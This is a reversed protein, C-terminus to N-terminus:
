KKKLRFNCIKDLLNKMKGMLSSKQTQEHLKQNLKQVEEQKEGLVQALRANEALARQQVKEYFKKAYETKVAPNGKAQLIEYARKLSQTQRGATVADDAMDNVLKKALSNNGVKQLEPIAKARVLQKIDQLNNQYMKDLVDDIDNIDPITEVIYDAIQESQKNSVAAYSLSDKLATVINSVNSSALRQLVKKPKLGKAMNRFDEQLDALAKDDAATELFVDDILQLQKKTLKKTASLTDLINQKTMGFDRQKRISEKFADQDLNFRKSGTLEKNLADIFKDSKGRTAEILTIKDAKIDKAVQAVDEDKAKVEDIIGQAEQDSIGNNVLAEKIDTEKEGSDLSNKVFDTLITRQNNVAPFALAGKQRKGENEVAATPNGTLFLDTALKVANDIVSKKEDFKFEGEKGLLKNFLDRFFNAIIEIFSDAKSDRIYKSNKIIDEKSGAFVDSVFKRFEPNIFLEAMFEKVDTLGYTEVISGAIGPKGKKSAIYNYMEELAKYSDNKTAADATESSITLFHLLEHVATYYVNGGNFLEIKDDFDYFLGFAGDPSMEKNILFIDIKKLNGDKRIIKLIDTFEGGYEILKDVIEESTMEKKVGLDEFSIRSFPDNDGKFPIPKKGLLKALQDTLSTAKVETTEAGTVPGGTGEQNQETTGETAQEAEGTQVTPQQENEITTNNDFSEEFLDSFAEQGLLTNLEEIDQDTAEPANEVTAFYEDIPVEARLGLAADEIAVTGKAQSEEFFDYIAKAGINPKGNKISEIATEKQANSLRYGDEGEMDLGNLLVPEAVVKQVLENTRPSYDEAKINAVSKNTQSSRRQVKGGEPYRLIAHGRGYDINLGLDQADVRIENLASAKNKDNIRMKNFSDIRDRLGNIKEQRQSKAKAIKEPKPQAAKVEAASVRIRPKAAPQAEGQQKINPTQEILKSQDTQVKESGKYIKALRGAIVQKAQESTYGDSIFEKEVESLLTEIDIKRVAAQNMSERLKLGDAYWTDPNGLLADKFDKKVDKDSLKDWNQYRDIVRKSEKADQSELFSGFGNPMEKEKKMLADIAENAKSLPVNFVSARERQEMEKELTNFEDKHSPNGEIEAMRKEIDTDSKGEVSVDEPKPTPEAKPEITPTIETKPEEKKLEINDSVESISGADLLKQLTGEEELAEANKKTLFVTNGNRTTVHYINDTKGDFIEEALKDYEKSKQTYVKGLATNKNEEAMTKYVDSLALNHAMAMGEINGPAVNLEKIADTLKSSYTLMQLLGKKEAEDKFQENQLRTRLGDRFLQGLNNREAQQAYGYLSNQALEANGSDILKKWNSLNQSHGVLQGTKAAAGFGFGGALGGYFNQQFDETQMYDWVDLEPKGLARQQANYQYYGQIGEQAGEAIATKGLDVAGGVINLKPKINKAARFLTGFELSQLLLNPLFEADSAAAKSAAYPTIALGNEDKGTTLLDNYIQLKNQVTEFSSSILGGTIAGATGGGTAITAAMGPIMYPASQGVSYAYFSPDLLSRIGNYNFHKKAYESNQIVEGIAKNGTTYYDRMNTSAGFSNSLWRTASEMMNGYGQVFGTGYRRWGTLIKDAEEQRDRAVTEVALKEQDKEYAIYDDVFKKTEEKSAGKIGISGDDYMVIDKPLDKVGNILRKERQKTANIITARIENDQKQIIPKLEPVLRIEAEIKTEAEEPTLLKKNVQDSYKKVINQFSPKTALEKNYKEIIATQNADTTSNLVSEFNQNESSGFFDNLKKYNDVIPAFKENKPAQMFNKMENDVWGKVPIVNHFYDRVENYITLYERGQAPVETNGAEANIVPNNLQKLYSDVTKKIYLDEDISIGTSGLGALNVEGSGSIINILHDIQKKAVPDFRNNKFDNNLFFKKDVLDQRKKELEKAYEARDILIQGNVSSAAKNKQSTYGPTVYINNDTTSNVNKIVQDLEGIQQSINKNTFYYTSGDMDKARAFDRLNSSKQNINSAIQDNSIANDSKSLLPNGRKLLEIDADTLEGNVFRKNFETTLQKAADPKGAQDEVVKQGETRAKSKELEDGVSVTSARQQIGKAALEKVNEVTPNALKEEIQKAEAKEKFSQFDKVHNLQPITAGIDGTPLTFPAPRNVREKLAQKEEESLSKSPLPSVPASIPTPESSVAGTEEKKKLFPPIDTAEPAPTPKGNQVKEKMKERLFPPIDVSGM